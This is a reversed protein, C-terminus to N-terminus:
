RSHGTLSYCPVQLWCRVWVSVKPLLSSFLLCFSLLLSLPLLGPLPRWSLLCLCTVTFLGLLLSVGFGMLEWQLVLVLLLPLCILLPLPSRLFLFVLHLILSRLSMGFSSVSPIRLFLVLPLMLSVFLARPRSPLSATRPLYIRLASVPCLLLEVTLVGVFDALSRVHFSHPLPHAESESKARFVPLYSLFLDEGSPSVVASVVPLEGVRRAPAMSVLFLVKRSLDHLSGSSLPEFPPGRLFSLVRSLDWPPVWSSSVPRGLRFSRLLVRLVFHSSLEPLVFRIVVSLMSCSSAISSYFLCPVDSICYSLLLRRFRLARFLIGMIAVGPLRFAFFFLSSRIWAFLRLLLTFGQYLFYSFWPYVLLFVQHLLRLFLQLSVQSGFSDCVSLGWLVWLCCLFRCLPLIVLSLLSFRSFLISSSVCVCFCGYLSLCQLSQLRSGSM